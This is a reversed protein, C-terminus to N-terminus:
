DQLAPTPAFGVGASPSMAQQAFALLLRENFPRAILQVSVPLGRADTAIPLVLSPLGLYNVFGMYRHLGLLQRVDFTAHGPSVQTWDPIPFPLAPLMFIDHAELHQRAFERARGARAALAADRWERPIVLGALAVAQLAPSATADLLAQRHVLASETHLLIEALHMLPAHGAYADIRAAGPWRDAFDHLAAAVGPDLDADPIWAKVRPLAKPVPQLRGPESCAELLELADGASRALLGVSDLSPALPFIGSALILGHTTKLGVLGCTAAPIRVSGATDTGLSGYAMHSAVAVASGSSSGGVVSQAHLPNVCRTFRGNEGTAGCAYEAMSLAALSTAGHATLQSIVAAAPLGPAAGGRDHGIGPRRGPLDFIDKHALGIGSLRGIRPPQPEPRLTEVVAHFRGDLADLREYQSAIAEGCSLEGRGLAQQLGTLTSPLSAM